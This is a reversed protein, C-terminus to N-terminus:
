DDLGGHPFLLAPSSQALGVPRGARPAAVWPTAQPKDSGSPAPRPRPRRERRTQRVSDTRPLRERQVLRQRGAEDDEAARRELLEHDHQVMREFVQDVIDDVDEAHASRSDVSPQDVEDYAGAGSDAPYVRRRLCVAIVATLAVVVCCILAQDTLTATVPQQAADATPQEGGGFLSKVITGLTEKLEDHDETMKKLDPSKSNLYLLTVPVLVVNAMAAVIAVSRGVGTLRHLQAAILTLVAVAAILAGLWGSISAVPEDFIRLAPVSGDLRGFADTHVDGHPGSASLWPQCLLVLTLLSLATISWSQWGSRSESDPRTVVDSHGNPANDM